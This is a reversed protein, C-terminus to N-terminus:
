YVKIRNIHMGLSAPIPTGNPYYCTNEDVAMITTLFASIYLLFLILSSDQGMTTTHLSPIKHYYYTPHSSFLPFSPLHQSLLSARGTSRVPDQVAWRGVYRGLVYNWSPRATLRDHQKTVSHCRLHRVFCALCSSFRLWDDVHACSDTFRTIDFLQPRIALGSM